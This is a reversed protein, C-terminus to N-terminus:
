NWNSPIVRRGLADPRPLSSLISCNGCHGGAQPPRIRATSIDGHRAGFKKKRCRNIRFPRRSGALPRRATARMCLRTALGSNARARFLTLGLATARELALAPNFTVSDWSWERIHGRSRGDPDYVTLRAFNPIGRAGIPDPWRNWETLWAGAKKRSL